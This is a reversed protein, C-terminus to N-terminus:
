YNIFQYMMQNPTHLFYYKGDIKVILFDIDGSEEQYKGTITMYASAKYISEFELIGKNSLYPYSSYINKADNEYMEVDEKSLKTM